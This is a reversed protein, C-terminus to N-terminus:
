HKFHRVGTFVMAIEHEDAARISEEDRLSGGPQIIARVGSRAAEDIGDRFPFFADSALVCGDLALQAKQAGLRVSDVRSMQGAGVGLLQGGRAYIIANSKVHKCINWAFLLDDIEEESPTRRTVSQLQSRNIRHTDRDQVLFGGSIRKFDLELHDGAAAQFDMEMIRLNKKESFLELADSEYGPAIVAEVFLSSMAEATARDVPRNLGIVSGFASVPDCEYARAYAEALTKAAAAGCPNTHKIIGCFPDAFESCLRWAAELDLYNNFSLTKGHRQMAGALGKGRAHRPRYLGGRQHPNEGYRLQQQQVLDLGMSEPLGTEQALIRDFFDTIASDYAATHAFAKRALALRTAPSTQGNLSKLEQVLAPYDSPSVVVAIHDHNKAAARIMTPGGIDIQEIAEAFTVGERAVTEQFPYLNVVVLPIAPIQNEELVRLHEPDDLRALIGAHIRPHLTKVRGGLIEPFGTHQSVRIVPIGEAELAKATGGTSIINIGLADLERGLEVVGEKNSVSVLAYEIKM